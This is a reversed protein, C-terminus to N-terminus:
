RGWRERREWREIVGKSLGTVRVIQRISIGKYRMALVCERQVEQGQAQFASANTAGCCDGMISLAMDDSFRPKRGRATSADLEYAAPKSDMDVIADITAIALLSDEDILQNGSCLLRRSSWKYSTPTKSTKSAVPNQFIYFLVALFYTDDTVPYSKYRNQFLHGSREYKINFWVAYKLSLRKMLLSLPEEGTRLLIHVHNGMLCYAYYSCGSQKKVSAMCDLFKQYDADEEFIRQQNIGRLIIHYIGNSSLQRKKRAMYIIICRLITKHLVYYFRGWKTGNQGM